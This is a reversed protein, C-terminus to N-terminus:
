MGAFLFQVGVEYHEGKLEARTVRARRESQELGAEERYPAAIEIEMGMRLPHRTRFSLGGQAATWTHTVERFKLGPQDCRVRIPLGLQVHPSARRDQGSRREPIIGSWVTVDGCTSCPHHLELTRSLERLQEANPRFLQETGCDTCRLKIGASSWPVTSM